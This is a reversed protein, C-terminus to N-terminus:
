TFVIYSELKFESKYTVFYSTNTNQLFLVIVCCYIDSRAVFRILSRSSLVIVTNLIITQLQKIYHKEEFICAHDWRMLSRTIEM